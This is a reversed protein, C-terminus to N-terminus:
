LCHSNRMIHLQETQTLSYYQSDSISLRNKDCKKKRDLNERVRLDVSWCIKPESLRAPYAYQLAGNSMLWTHVKRFRVVIIRILHKQKKVPM